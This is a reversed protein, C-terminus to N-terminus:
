GRPPRRDNFGEVGLLDALRGWHHLRVLGEVRLVERGHDFVVIAPVDEGVGLAARADAGEAWPIREWGESSIAEDVDGVLAGKTASLKMKRALTVSRVAPDLMKALRADDDGEFGGPRIGPIDARTVKGPGVFVFACTTQACTEPDLAGARAAEPMAPGAEPERAGITERLADLEDGVLGGSHRAVIQGDPGLVVLGHHGKPLKFTEIFVGEYDVYLPFRVESAYSAMTTEIRDSFVGMGGADAVVYGVTDEPLVWRSLARNTAEGEDSKASWTGTVVVIVTKGHLSALELPPQGRLGPISVTAPDAEVTELVEPIPETRTFWWAGVGGLALLVVGLAAITKKM